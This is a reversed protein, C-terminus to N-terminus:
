SYYHRVIEITNTHHNYRIQANPNKLITTTVRDLNSKNLILYIFYGDKSKAFKLNFIIYGAQHGFIRLDSRRRREISKKIKLLVQYDNTKINAIKYVKKDPKFDIEDLNYFKYDVSNNKVVKYIINKQRRIEINGMRIMTKEYKTDLRNQIMKKEHKYMKENAIDIYEGVSTEDILIDDEDDYSEMIMDLAEDETLDYDEMLIDVAELLEEDTYSM